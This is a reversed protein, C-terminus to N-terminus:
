HMFVKWLELQLILKKELFDGFYSRFSKTKKKNTKDYINLQQCSM